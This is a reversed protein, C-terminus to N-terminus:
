IIITVKKYKRTDRWEMRDIMQLEDIKQENWEMSKRGIKEGKHLSIYIM